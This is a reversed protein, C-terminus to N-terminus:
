RLLLLSRQRGEQLLRAKSVSRVAFEPRPAASVKGRPSKVHNENRRRFVSAMRVRRNAYKAEKGRANRPM